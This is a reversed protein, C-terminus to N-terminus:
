NNQNIYDFDQLQLSLGKDPVDVQGFAMYNLGTQLTKFTASM